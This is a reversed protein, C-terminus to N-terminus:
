NFDRWPNFKMQTLDKLQNVDDEYLSKLWVREEVSLKLVKTTRFKKELILAMRSKAIRLKSIIQPSIVIVLGKFITSYNFVKKLRHYMKANSYKVTANTRITEITDLKKLGLFEFCKNVEKLPDDHLDETLLILINEKEFNDFYKKLYKAYLGFQFYYRYGFGFTNKYDPEDDKDVMIASKFNLKEGILSDVWNYHSFIRDIPNRLVFIFKPNDIDSKIRDVVNAFVLYGTSSEGRCKCSKGNKFRRTYDEKEYNYRQDHSYFHPEKSETMFVDEHMNLYVHLSSTGSKAAGPVFFNPKAM